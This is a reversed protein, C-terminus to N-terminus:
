LKNNLLVWLRRSKRLCLPVTWKWFISYFQIQLFFSLVFHSHCVTLNSKPQCIVSIFGKQQSLEVDIVVTTQNRRQLSLVCFLVVLTFPNQALPLPADLVMKWVESRSNNGLLDGQFGCNCGHNCVTPPHWWLVSVKLDLIFFCACVTEYESLQGIFYLLNAEQDTACVCVSVGKVNRCM